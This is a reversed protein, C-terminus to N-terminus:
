PSRVAPIMKSPMTQKPRKILREAQHQEKGQAKATKPHGNKATLPKQM